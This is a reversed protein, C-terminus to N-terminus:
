SGVHDQVVGRDHRFWLDFHDDFDGVLLPGEPENPTPGRRHHGTSVEPPSVPPLPPTADRRM